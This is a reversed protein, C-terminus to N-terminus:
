KVEESARLQEIFRLLLAHLEAIEAEALCSWPAYFYSDTL